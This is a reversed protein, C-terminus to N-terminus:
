TLRIIHKQGVERFKYKDAHSRMFSFMRCTWTFVLDRAYTLDEFATPLSSEAEATYYPLGPMRMGSLPPDAEVSPKYRYCNM